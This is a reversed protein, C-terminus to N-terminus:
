PDKLNLTRTRQAILWEQLYTRTHDGDIMITSVTDIHQTDAINLFYFSYSPSWDKANTEEVFRGLEHGVELIIGLRSHHHDWRGDDFFGNICIAHTAGRPVDPLGNITMRVNHHVALVGPLSAGYDHANM